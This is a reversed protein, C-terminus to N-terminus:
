WTVGRGKVVGGDRLITRGCGVAISNEVADPPYLDDISSSLVVQEIVPNSYKQGVDCNISIMNKALADLDSREGASLIRALLVQRLAESLHGGIAGSREHGLLKREDVQLEDRSASGAGGSTAPTRCASAGLVILQLFRKRM